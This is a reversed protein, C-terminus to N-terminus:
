PTMENERLGAVPCAHHLALSARTSPVNKRRLAMLFPPIVKVGHCILIPLIM